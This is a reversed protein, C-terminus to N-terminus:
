LILEERGRLTWNIARWLTYFCVVAFFSAGIMSLAYGYWVPLQLIFTTEVYFPKDGLALLDRLGDSGHPFREGFGLWLRWAIISSALTMAADGLMGFATRLRPPFADVLVDVTVQGRNIQGWPLFAFVAVVCALEVLEFDGRVPGLGAWIFARGIISIVTMLASATLIFGGAYALWRAMKRLIRGIHVEARPAIGGTISM